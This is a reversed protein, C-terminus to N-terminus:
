VEYHTLNQVNFIQLKKFWCSVFLSDKDIVICGPYDDLDEVEIYDWEGIPSLTLLRNNNRDAILLTGEADSGSIIPFQLDGLINGLMSYTRYLQGTRHYQLITDESAMTVYIFNSTLEISNWVHKAYGYIPIENCVALTQKSYSTFKLMIIKCSENDLAVVHSEWVSQDCFDGVTIHKSALPYTGHQQQTESSLFADVSDLKCSFLGRQAAIFVFNDAACISQCHGTNDTIFTFVPKGTMSHVHIKNTSDEIFWLNDQIKAFHICEFDHNVQDVLETRACSTDQLRVPIRCSNTEVSPLLAGLTNNSMSSPTFKVDIDRLKPLDINRALLSLNSQFGSQIHSLLNIGQKKAFMTDYAKLIEGRIRIDSKLDDIQKQITRLQKCKRENLERQIEACDKRVRAMVDDFHANVDRELQEYDARVTDGHQEAQALARQCHALLDQVKNRNLLLKPKIANIAEDITEAQHNKHRTGNCLMCILLQCDRCHLRIIEERHIECFVHRESLAPPSTNSIASTTHSRFLSFRDHYRRCVDCFDERCELCRWKPIENDCTDCLKEYDAFNITQLLEKVFTISRINHKATFKRCLLCKYGTQNDETAADLRSICDKCCFHLCQLAHPNVLAKLCVPCEGASESPHPNAAAM